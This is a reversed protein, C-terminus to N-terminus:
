NFLRCQPLPSAIFVYHRLRQHSQFVLIYCQCVPKTPYVGWAAENWAQVNGEPGLSASKQMDAGFRAPWPRKTPILRYSRGIIRLESCHMEGVGRSGAYAM